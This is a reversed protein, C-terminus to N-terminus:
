GTPNITLEFHDDTLNALANTKDTEGQTVKTIVVDSEDESSSSDSLSSCTTSTTTAQAPAVKKCAPCKWTTRRNNPMRKLDLCALHFYKGNKCSKGHCEVLKDTPTPKAKCICISDRKMEAHDSVFTPQASKRTNRERKFQPPRSCHPCYWTKPMAISTLSLCSPHFRQYPCDKNCCLISDEDREARCFCFADRSPLTHPVTGRRTYWRRLIEPLICIRWFLELKPLVFNWHQVDPYIRQVFSHINKAKDIACM